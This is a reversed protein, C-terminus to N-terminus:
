RLDLPTLVGDKKVALRLPRPPGKRPVSVEVWLEEGRPRRSPDPVRESIFFAVPEQLTWRDPGAASLLTGSGTASTAPAAVLRGNQASLVVPGGVPPIGAPTPGNATDVELRLSVYRGRIPLNPDAPLARAWARPLRERDIAYKGALSLVILCQLLAVAIGRFIPKM